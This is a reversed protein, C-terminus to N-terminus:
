GRIVVIYLTTGTANYTMSGYTKGPLQPFTLAGGAPVKCGKITAVASGVNNVGVTLAGAGITGTGTAEIFTIDNDAVFTLPAGM